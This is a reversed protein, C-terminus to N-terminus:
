GRRREHGAARDGVRHHHGVVSRRRRGGHLEGVRERAVHRDGRQRDDASGRAVRRRRHVAGGGRQGAARRERHDDGGGNGGRRRGARHQAFLTATVDADGSSGVCDFLVADTDPVTM